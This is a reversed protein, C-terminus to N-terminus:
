EVIKYGYQRAGSPSLGLRTEQNAYTLPAGTLLSYGMKQLVYRAANVRDDFYGSDWTYTGNSLGGNRALETAGNKLVGNSLTLSPDKDAYLWLLADFVQSDSIANWTIKMKGYQDSAPITMTELPLLEGESALVEFKVKALKTKWDGSVRWSIKHEVNPAINDGVNVGTGDVFTEPRVVKAFSRQGEEFALVRVKVSPKKSTVKYVVDMITPDDDRVHSSSVEIKNNVIYGAFKNIGASSIWSSAYERTCWIYKCSNLVHSDFLASPPKGHSVIVELSSCGDFTYTGFSTLSAPLEMRRLATCGYFAFGEIVKMSDPLTVSRLATCGYFSNDYIRTVGNPIVLSTIEKNYKASSLRMDTVPCGGLVPPIILDGVCPSVGTVTSKGDSINYSWTLGDVVETAASAGFAVAALMAAMVSKKM